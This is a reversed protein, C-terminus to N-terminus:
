RAAGDPASRYRKPATSSHTGASVIIEAALARAASIAEFLGTATRRAFCAMLVMSNM